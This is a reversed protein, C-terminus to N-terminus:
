CWWSVANKSFLTSTHIGTVSVGNEFFLTPRNTALNTLLNFIALHVPVSPYIFLSFYFNPTESVLWRRLTRGDRGVVRGSALGRLRVSGATKGARGGASRGYFLFLSFYDDNKSPPSNQFCFLLVFDIPSYRRRRTCSLSLVEREREWNRDYLRERLSFPTGHCSSQRGQALRTM